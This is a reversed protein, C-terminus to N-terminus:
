GEENRTGNKSLLTQAKTMRKSFAEEVQGVVVGFTKLLIWLDQGPSLRRAYRIDLRIMQDFTTRNKGTVQWLGTLGPLSTFREKHWSEYQEFEYSTCPRPGVLSMEGRIVNFLQPLEDLGSARLINGLPILRPDNSSDLKVMPADSKMLDELYKKHVGVDADCRMSRFKLCLFPRGRHGIREQRFFIPGPSVLKIGLGVLLMVPLWIPILILILFLDLFRKWVPLRSPRSVLVETDFSRAITQSEDSVCGTIAPEQVFMACFCCCM